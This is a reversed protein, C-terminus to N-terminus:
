QERAFSRTRLPAAKVHMGQNPHNQRLGWPYGHIERSYSPDKPVGSLRFDFARLEQGRQREISKRLTRRANRVFTVNQDCRDHPTANRETVHAPQLFRPREEVLRDGDIASQQLVFM